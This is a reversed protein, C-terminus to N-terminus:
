LGDLVATLAADTTESMTVDVSSGANVTMDKTFSFLTGGANVAIAVIKVDSGDPISGSVTNYIQMVTRTDPFYAFLAVNTLMDTSSTFTLRHNTNGGREYGCNIWGPKGIFAYYGTAISTTTDTFVPNVSTSVGLSALNDTWNTYTSANFGYFVRMYNEPNANPMLIPFSCGPRLELETGNKFARLRIEGDTELLTDSAITPMQYYIMDKPTYLEVLKITFPFTVSDGNPFMLCEKWAWINTGQKGIIPGPGTTDIIFEQEEQKKSDLYDNPSNYENLKKEEEEIRKKSCGGTILSAAILITSFLRFKKMKILWFGPM